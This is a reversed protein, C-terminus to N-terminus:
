VRNRHFKVLGGEVAAIGSEKEIETRNGTRWGSAKAIRVIGKFAGVIGPGCVAGEIRVTSKRTSADVDRHPAFVKDCAEKVRWARAAPGPSKGDVFCAGNLHAKAVTEKKILGVFAVLEALSQQLDISDTVSIAGVVREGLQITSCSNVLIRPPLNIRGGNKQCRALM